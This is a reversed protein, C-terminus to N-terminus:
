NKAGEGPEKEGALEFDYMLMTSEGGTFSSTWGTSLVLGVFLKARNEMGPLALFRFDPIYGDIKRTQWMEALAIGNWTLAYIESSKFSKYNEVHRSAYSLNRNVVV